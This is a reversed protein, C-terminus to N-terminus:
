KIIDYFNKFEYGQDKYYQIIQPLAELTTAKTQADHMLLVVSNKNSSTEQLRQLLFEVSADSKESDGILANWDVNVINNQNLLEKAQIKIDAYKGGALGGPFRFLHSNYETQNIAQKVAENCKNFEDLVAQPSSYIQSYVHSYGHNAIYHGEQYMRKVTEPMAEVRSGLVFFTVKINQQKLIDLIQSTITSPGDDFTIFVRKNDSKYINSINEFGKQTLNPLREKKIQEIKKNIQEQTQNSEQQLQQLKSEYQKYTKYKKMYDITYILTEILMLIILIIILIILIKKKNIKKNKNIEYINIIEKGEEVM